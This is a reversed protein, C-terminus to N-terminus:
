GSGLKEHLKSLREISKDILQAQGSPSLGDKIKQRALATTTEAVFTRLEGLSAEAHAEIEQEALKTIRAGEEEAKRAIKEREQRGQAESQAKMGAIEDALGDLRRGAEGTRAEALSRSSAAEEITTRVDWTRKELFAKVPKALLFALGGFLILFNVVKGIFDMPGAAKAVEESSMGLLLPLCILLILIGKKGSM